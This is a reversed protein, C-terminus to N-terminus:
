LRIKTMVGCTELLIIPMVRQLFKPCLERFSNQAYSESGIKPTLRLVFKPCSFSLFCHFFFSFFSFFVKPCSYRFSNQAQHYSELQIKPMVGSVFKKACSELHIKPIIRSIFKEYSELRIKEVRRELPIKPCLQRFSNQAHGELPTKSMIIYLIKPVCRQVFKPM